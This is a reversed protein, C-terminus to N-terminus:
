LMRRAPQLADLEAGLTAVKREHWERDRPDRAAAALETHRRIQGEIRLRDDLCAARRDVMVRPNSAEGM